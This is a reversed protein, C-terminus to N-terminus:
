PEVPRLECSLVNSSLVVVIHAATLITPVREVFINSSIFDKNIRSMIKYRGFIWIGGKAFLQQPTIERLSWFNFSTSIPRCSNILRGGAQM